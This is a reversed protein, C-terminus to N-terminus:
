IHILSLELVGRLFSTVFKSNEAANHSEKTGLKLEKSFTEVM